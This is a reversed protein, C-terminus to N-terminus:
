NSAECGHNLALPAQEFLGQAKEGGYICDNPNGYYLDTCCHHYCAERNGPAYNLCGCNSVYDFDITSGLAALLSVVFTKQM